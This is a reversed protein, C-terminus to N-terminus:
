PTTSKLANSLAVGQVAAADKIAYQYYINFASPLGTPWTFPFGIGGTPSTTFSLVLLQPIPIITGGKFPTPTNSLGIFLSAPASGNAFSLDLEAPQGGNQTGTGGLIPPIGFIGALGSGLNTWTGVGGGCGGTECVVANAFANCDMPGWGVCTDWGM